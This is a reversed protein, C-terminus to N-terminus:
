LVKSTLAQCHMLHCHLKETHNTKEDESIWRLRYIAAGPIVLHLPLSLVTSSTILTAQKTLVYIINANDFSTLVLLDITSYSGRRVHEIAAGKV